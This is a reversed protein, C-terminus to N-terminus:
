RASAARTHSHRGGAAHSWKTPTGGTHHSWEQALQPVVEQALSPVVRPDAPETSDRTLM